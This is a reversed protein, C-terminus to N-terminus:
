KLSNKSFQLPLLSGASSVVYISGNEGEMLLRIPHSQKNEYELLVQRCAGCPSIPLFASNSAKCAAIAICLIKQHSYNAGAAFVATREACLGSPYAANEQNSGLVVEGNELLLAAGVHFQSYPAYATSCAQQAKNLLNRDAESLENQSYEEIFIKLDLKKM